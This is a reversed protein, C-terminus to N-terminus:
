VAGKAMNDRIVHVGAVSRGQSGMPVALPCKKSVVNGLRPEHETVM